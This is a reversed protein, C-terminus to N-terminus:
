SFLEDLQPRQQPLTPERGDVMFDPSLGQRVEQLWAWDQPEQELIIANGVRRITLEHTDVRFEKPLRIAQSRGSWFVKATAM